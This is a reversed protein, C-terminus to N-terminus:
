SVRRATRGSQEFDQLEKYNSVIEEKRYELKKKSPIDSKSNLVKKVVAFPDDVLDEYYYIPWSQKYSRVQNRISRRVESYKDFSIEFTNKNNRYFSEENKMTGNLVSDSISRSLVWEFMDRRQMVVVAFGTSQLNIAEEVDHTHVLDQYRDCFHIRLYSFLLLSGCRGPSVICIKRDSM